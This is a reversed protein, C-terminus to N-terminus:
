AQPGGHCDTNKVPAQNSRLRKSTTTSDFTAPKNGNKFLCYTILPSLALSLFQNLVIMM